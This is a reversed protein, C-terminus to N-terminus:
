QAVEQRVQARKIKLLSKEILASDVDDADLNALANQEAEKARELSLEGSTEATESLVNVGLPSVECYGWSIAVKQEEGNKPKYRLVGTQLTTMLPVHNPLVQMEGQVGPIFVYEVEEDVLLKKVPTLLTLKM